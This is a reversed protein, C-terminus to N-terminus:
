ESFKSFNSSIIGVVNYSCTVVSHYSKRFHIDYSQIPMFNLSLFYKRTVSEQALRIEHVATDVIYIVYVGSIVSFRALYVYLPIGLLFTFCKCM